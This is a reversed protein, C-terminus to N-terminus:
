HTAAAPPKVRSFDLDQFDFSFDVTPSLPAMTMGSVAGDLGTRFNVLADAKLSRDDWRVVFVNGKMVQLDGQMDTTRSFSLRLEGGHRSVTADGRWPDHYVGVYADLPLFAQGGAAKIAADADQDAKDGQKAQDAERQAYFGVWDRPKGGLFPDLLSQMM